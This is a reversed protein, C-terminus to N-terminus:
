KLSRAAEMDNYFKRHAEKEEENMGHQYCDSSVVTKCGKCYMRDCDCYTRCICDFHTYRGSDPDGSWSM